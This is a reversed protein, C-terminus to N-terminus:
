LKVSHLFDAVAHRNFVRRAFIVRDYEGGAPSTYDEVLTSFGFEKIAVNKSRLAGRTNSLYARVRNVLSLGDGDTTIVALTQEPDRSWSDLLWNLIASTNVPHKATDLCPMSKSDPEQPISNM